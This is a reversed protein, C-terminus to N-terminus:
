GSFQWATKMLDISNRAATESSRSGDNGSMLLSGKVGGAEFVAVEVEALVM